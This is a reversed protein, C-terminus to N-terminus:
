QKIERNREKFERRLCTCNEPCVFQIAAQTGTTALSNIQETTQAWCGIENSIAIYVIFIFM